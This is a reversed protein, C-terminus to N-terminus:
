QPGSFQSAQRATLYFYLEMGAVGAGSEGDVVKGTVAIGRKLEITLDRVDQGPKVEFPKPAETYYPCGETPMM